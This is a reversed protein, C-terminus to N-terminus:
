AGGGAIEPGVPLAWVVEDFRGTQAFHANSRSKLVDISPWQNNVFSWRADSGIRM